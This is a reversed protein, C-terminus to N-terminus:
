PLLGASLSTMIPGLVFISLLVVVILAPYIRFLRKIAYRGPHPDGLWSKTIFYGCLVFLIKVGVAHIGQGAFIPVYSGQGMIYYMHGLIVLFAAIVRIINFNNSRKDNTDSESTDFYYHFKGIITAKDM